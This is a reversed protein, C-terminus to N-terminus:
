NLSRILHTAITQRPIPFTFQWIDAWVWLRTKKKFCQMTTKATAENHTRKKLTQTAFLMLWFKGRLWVSFDDELNRKDYLCRLITHLGIELDNVESLVLILEKFVLCFAFKRVPHIWGTLFILRPWMPFSALENWNRGKLFRAM